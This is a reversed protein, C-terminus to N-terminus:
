MTFPRLGFYASHSVFTQHHRVGVFFDDLEEGLVQLTMADDEARVRLHRQPAAVRTHEEVHGAATFGLARVAARDISQFSALNDAGVLDSTTAGCHIPSATILSGRSARSA